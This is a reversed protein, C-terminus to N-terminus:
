SLPHRLMQIAVRMMGALPLSVSIRQVLGNGRRTVDTAFVVDLVGSSVAATFTPAALRKWTPDTRFRAALALMSAVAAGSSLIASVDHVDNVWSQQTDPEGPPAFNSRRDRRFVGVAIMALGGAGMIAPGWGVSRGDLSLRRELETAFIVSSAGLVLFGATMLEPDQADPAALGSIHEHALLYDDQRRGSLIWATTFVAPGVIGGATRVVSGIRRVV